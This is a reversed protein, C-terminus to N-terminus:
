DNVGITVFSSVCVYAGTEFGPPASDCVTQNLVEIMLEPAPEECM